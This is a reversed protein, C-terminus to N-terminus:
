GEIRGVLFTAGEPGVSESHLCGAEMAFQEGEAYTEAGDKKTLTLAGSLVFGRVGFDHSHEGTEYGPKWTVTKVPHGAEQLKAEFASRKDKSM